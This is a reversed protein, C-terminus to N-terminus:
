EEDEEEIKDRTSVYRQWAEDICKGASVRDMWLVNVYTIM